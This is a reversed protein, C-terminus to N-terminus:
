DAARKGHVEPYDNETTNIRQSRLRARKGNELALQSGM